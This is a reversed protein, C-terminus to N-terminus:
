TFLPQTQCDPKLESLAYPPVAEGPATVIFEEDWPGLLLKIFFRQSGTVINWDLGLRGALEEIKHRYEAPDYALTDILTLYRYHKLMSRMIKRGRENGFRSICYEYEDTLNHESEIWGKTFYYRAGQKSLLSRRQQSGLLLSICDEARPLILQSRDSKIGTLGNGCLGFAIIITDTDSVADITAQIQERLKEPRLHLKSDVWHVPYAVGTTRIALELELAITRCAVVASKM